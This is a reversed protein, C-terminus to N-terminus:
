VKLLEIKTKLVKTLGITGDIEIGGLIEVAGSFIGVSPWPQSLDVSASALHRFSLVEIFIHAAKDTDYM